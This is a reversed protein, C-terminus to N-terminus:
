FDGGAGGGGSDGGSDCAEGADYSDTTDCPPSDPNDSSGSDAHMLGSNFVDGSSLSPDYATAGGAVTKLRKKRKLWELMLVSECPERHDFSFKEQVKRSMLFRSRSQGTLRACQLAIHGFDFMSVQEKQAVVRFDDGRQRTSLRVSPLLTRTVYVKGFDPCTRICRIQANADRRASNVAVSCM